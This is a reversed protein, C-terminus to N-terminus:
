LQHGAVRLVQVGQVRWGAPELLLQYTASRAVGGQGTLRVAQVVLRNGIRVHGEFRHGISAAVPAHGSVMVAAHFTEADPFGARVASTALSFAAEADGTRFAEIQRDITEQWPAPTREAGIAGSALLLVVAVMRLVWLTITRM